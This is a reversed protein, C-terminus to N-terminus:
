RTSSHRFRVTQGSLEDERGRAMKTFAERSEAFSARASGVYEDLPDAPNEEDAMRAKLATRVVLVVSGAVLATFVLVTLVLAM